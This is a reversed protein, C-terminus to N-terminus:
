KAIGKEKHQEAIKILSLFTDFNMPMDLLDYAGSLTSCYMENTYSVFLHTMATVFPESVLWVVTKHNNTQFENTYIHSLEELEKITFAPAFNEDFMILLYYIKSYDKDTKYEQNLQLAEQLTFKESQIKVLAFRHEPFMRFYNTHLTQM